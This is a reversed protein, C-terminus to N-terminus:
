SMNFMVSMEKNLINHWNKKQHTKQNYNCIRFANIRIGKWGNTLLTTSNLCFENTHATSNKKKKKKKTEEKM